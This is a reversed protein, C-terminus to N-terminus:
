TTTFLAKIHTFLRSWVDNIKSVLEYKFAIWLTLLIILHKAYPDPPESIELAIIVSILMQFTFRIMNKIRNQMTHPDSEIIMYRLWRKELEVDSLVRFKPKPKRPKM